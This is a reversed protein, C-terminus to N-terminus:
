GGMNAKLVRRYEDMHKSAADSLFNARAEVAPAYSVNTGIYVTKNSVDIAHTISNRLRGTDVPCAKKAHGEARLGIEELSKALARDIATIIELTNDQQIKVKLRDDADAADMIEQTIPTGSRTRQGVGATLNAM